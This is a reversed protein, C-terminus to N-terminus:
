KVRRWHAGYFKAYPHFPISGDPRRESLIKTVRSSVRIEEQLQRIATSDPREKLVHVRAKYRISPEASNLLRDLISQM